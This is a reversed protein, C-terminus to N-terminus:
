PDNGPKICGPIEKDEKKESPPAALLKELATRQATDLLSKRAGVALLMEAKKRDNLYIANSLATTGDSYTADIDAGHKVLMELFLKIRDVDGVFLRFQLLAHIPAVGSSRRRDPGNKIANVPFNRQEILWRGVRLAAGEAAAVLLTNNEDIVEGRITIPVGAKLLRQVMDFRDLEAATWLAARRADEDAFPLLIDLMAPNNRMVSMSLADGPSLLNGECTKFGDFFRLFTVRQVGQPPLLHAAIKLAGYDAADFLHEKPRSNSLCKEKCAALAAVYQEVNDESIATKISQQQEYSASEQWAKNAESVIFVAFVIAPIIQLAAVIKLWRPGGFLKLYIGNLLLSLFNGAGLLAAAFVLGLDPLFGGSENTALFFLGGSLSLGAVLWCFFCLVARGTSHTSQNSLAQTM